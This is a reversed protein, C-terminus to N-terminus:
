SSKETRKCQKKLQRKGRGPMCNNLHWNNRCSRHQIGGWWRAAARSLLGLKSWATGLAESAALPARSWCGQAAPYATSAHWLCSASPLMLASRCWSKPMNCRGLSAPDMGPDSLAVYGGGWHQLGFVQLTSALPICCLSLFRISWHWYLNFDCPFFCGCLNKKYQLPLELFNRCRLSMDRKQLMKIDHWAVVFISAPCPRSPDGWLLVM